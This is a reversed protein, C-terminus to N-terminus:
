GALLRSWMRNSEWQPDHISFPLSCAKLLDRAPAPFTLESLPEARAFTIVGGDGNVSESIVPDNPGIRTATQVVFDGQEARGILGELKAPTALGAVWARQRWDYAELDPQSNTSLVGGLRNFAVLHSLIAATEEDPPGLPIENPSGARSPARDM